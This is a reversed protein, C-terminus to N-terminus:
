NGAAVLMRSNPECLQIDGDTALQRVVFARQGIRCLGDGRAPDPLEGRETV